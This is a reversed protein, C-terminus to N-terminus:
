VCGVGSVSAAAVTDRLRIFGGRLLDRRTVTRVGAPPLRTWSDNEVAEAVSKFWEGHPGRYAYFIPTESFYKSVDQRGEVIIVSPKDRKSTAM